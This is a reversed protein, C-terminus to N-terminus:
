CARKALAKHHFYYRCFALLDDSELGLDVMGSSRGEFLAWEAAHKALDDSEVDYRNFLNIAATSLTVTLM